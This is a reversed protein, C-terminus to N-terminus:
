CWIRPHTKVKLVNTIQCNKVEEESHVTAFHALWWDSPVIYPGPSGWCNDSDHESGDCVTNRTDLLWRHRVPRQPRPSSPHLHRRPLSTQRALRVESRGPAHHLVPHIPRSSGCSISRYAARSPWWLAGIYPFALFICSFLCNICRCEALTILYIHLSICLYLHGPQSPYWLLCSSILRLLSATILLVLFM